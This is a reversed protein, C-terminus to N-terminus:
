TQMGRGSNQTQAWAFSLGCDTRMDRRHGPFGFHTPKKVYYKILFTNLTNLALM